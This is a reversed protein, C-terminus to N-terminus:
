KNGMMKMYEEMTMSYKKKKDSQQVQSFPSNQRAISEDFFQQQQDQPAPPINYTDGQLNTASEQNKGVSFDRGLVRPM